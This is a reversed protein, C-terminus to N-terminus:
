GLWGNASGARRLGAVLYGCERTLEWVLGTRDHEIMIVIPGQDIGYHWPSVWPHPPGSSHPFTPNFTAAATRTFKTYASGDSIIGEGRTAM